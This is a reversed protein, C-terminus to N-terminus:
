VMGKLFSIVKKHIGASIVPWAHAPVDSRFTATARSWRASHGPVVIADLPCWTALTPVAWAARDLRKLFQCAPRM